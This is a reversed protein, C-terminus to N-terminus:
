TIVEFKRLRNPGIEAVYVADGGRAIAVDHPAQLETGWVDVVQNDAALDLTAGRVAPDFVSGKGNVAILATGRGAIGYVRGLGPLVTAKQGRFQPARLGAGICEVKRGERDAVCLVDEQEYLVLSHVVNWDGELNHLHRGSSDFVAVRSNCCGDAVFIQGNSAVATSTPKCFHSADSGPTFKEGLGM